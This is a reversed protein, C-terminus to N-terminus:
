CLRSFPFCVHGFPRDSNQGGWELPLSRNGLKVQLNMVISGVILGPPLSLLAVVYGGLV